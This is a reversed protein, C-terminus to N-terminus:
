SGPTLFGDVSDAADEAFFDLFMHDADDVIELVVSGADVLPLFRDPVEPVVTDLSGAIVLIPM